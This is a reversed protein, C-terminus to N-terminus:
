ASRHKPDGQGSVSSQRVQKRMLVSSSFVLMAALTLKAKLVSLLALRGAPRERTGEAEQFGVGLALM